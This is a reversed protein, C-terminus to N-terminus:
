LFPHAPNDVPRFMFRRAIEVYGGPYRLGGNENLLDDRHAQYYRPLAHWPLDPRRHHVFHLNNNLFLLSFFRGADVIATREFPTNAAKHEAFSRVLTLSTGPLAFLGLYAWFSLDCVGVVWVLVLATAPVHWLWAALNRRDGSLLARVEGAFFQGITLFPGLVMRGLLTNHAYLLAQAPPSLTRWSAQDVYFSEPDQWPDTLIEFRHHARHNRRYVPYPLWLSLPPWALLANLWGIPALHGHIAEHQLSGQWAVLLAGLPLLILVPLSTAFWTALLWGGYVVVVLLWTLGSGYRKTVREEM